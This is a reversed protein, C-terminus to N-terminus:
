IGPRHRWVAWMLWLSPLGAMRHFTCGRPKPPDVGAYFRDERRAAATSCQRVAAGTATRRVSEFPRVKLAWLVGYFTGSELQQFPRQGNFASRSWDPEARNRKGQPQQGVALLVSWKAPLPPWVLKQM